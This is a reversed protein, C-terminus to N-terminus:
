LISTQILLPITAKLNGVHVHFCKSFTSQFYPLSLIEFIGWINLICTTKVSMFHLIKKKDKRWPSIVDGLIETAFRIKNAIRSFLGTTFSLPHYVMKKSM